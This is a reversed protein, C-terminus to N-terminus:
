ARHPLVVAVLLPAVGKLALGAADRARDGSVAIGECPDTSVLPHREERAEVARRLLVLEENGGGIALAARPREQDREVAVLAVRAVVEAVREAELALPLVALGQEIVAAV